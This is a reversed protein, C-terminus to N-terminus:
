RVRRIQRGAFANLVGIRLTTSGGSSVADCNIVGPQLCAYVLEASLRQAFFVQIRVVFQMTRFANVLVQTRPNCAVQADGRHLPNMIPVFSHPSLCAHPDNKLRQPMGSLRQPPTTLKTTPRTNTTLPPNYKPDLNLVAVM